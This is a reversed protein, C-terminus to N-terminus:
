ARSLKRWIAERTKAFCCRFESKCVLGTKAFLVLNPSQLSFLFLFVSLASKRLCIRPFHSIEPDESQLADVEQGKAKPSAAASREDPEDMHFSPLMQFQRLNAPVSQRRPTSEKSRSPRVRATPSAPSHSAPSPSAPSPSAPSPSAPAPTPSPSPSREREDTTVTAGSKNSLSRGTRAGDKTNERSESDPPALTKPKEADQRRM